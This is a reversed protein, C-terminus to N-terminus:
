RRPAALAQPPVLQVRPRLTGHLHLLLTSAVITRMTWLEERPLAALAQPPLHQMHPRLTGHLYLLLTSSAVRMTM